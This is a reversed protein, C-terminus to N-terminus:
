RRQTSWNSGLLLGVIFACATLAGLAAWTIAGRITLAEGEPQDSPRQVQEPEPAAAVQPQAVTPEDIFESSVRTATAPQRDRDSGWVAGALSRASGDSGDM